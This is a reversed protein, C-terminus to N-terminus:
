WALAFVGLALLLPLAASVPVAVLRGPRPLRAAGSAWAAGRGCALVLVLGLLARLTLAGSGGAYGVRSAPGVVRVPLTDGARVQAGVVRVGALDLGAGTVNARCQRGIGQGTCSTVTAVARSGHGLTLWAPEASVWGFFAALLGAVILGLLGVAPSRTGRAHQRILPQRPPRADYVQDARMRPVPWPILSDADDPVQHRTPAVASRASRDPPLNSVRGNCL